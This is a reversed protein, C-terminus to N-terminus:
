IITGINDGTGYYASYAKEFDFLNYCIAVAEDENSIFWVVANPRVRFIHEASPVDWAGFPVDVPPLIPGGGTKIEIGILKAM